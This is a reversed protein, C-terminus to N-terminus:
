VLVIIQRNRAGIESFFCASLQKFKDMAFQTQYGLGLGLELGLGLGLGLRLRIEIIETDYTCCVVM